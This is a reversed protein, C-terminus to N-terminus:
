MGADADPGDSDKLVLGCRMGAYEPTCEYEDRTDARDACVSEDSDEAVKACVLRGDCDQATECAEGEAAPDDECAGAMLCAFLSVYLLRRRVKSSTSRMGRPIGRTQQGRLHSM